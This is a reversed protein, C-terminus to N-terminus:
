LEGREAAFQRLRTRRPPLLDRVRCFLSRWTDTFDPPPGDYGLSVLARYVTGVLTRPRALSEQTVQIYPVAHDRLLAFREIDSLYQSRDEQHHGGEFEVVPGHEVFVLDGIARADDGLDLPHSPTAPPLGVARLIARTESEKVSRSRHDLWPVV